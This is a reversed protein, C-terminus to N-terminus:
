LYVSKLRDQYRKVFNSTWNKGIPGGIIEKAINKVMASTPPMLHDILDNIQKILVEEQDTTLRQKHESSYTAISTTLGKHRKALMSRDLDYKKATASYNLKSQSNLDTIALQMRQEFPPPDMISHHHIKKSFHSKRHPPFKM